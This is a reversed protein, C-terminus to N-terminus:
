EPKANKSDDSASAVIAAGSLVFAVGIWWTPDAVPLAESFAGWGVLASTVFNLGFGLVTVNLATYKQLADLYFKLMCANLAIGAALAVARVIWELLVYRTFIKAIQAAPPGEGSFDTAIKMFAAAISGFTSCLVCEM